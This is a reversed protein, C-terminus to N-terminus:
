KKVPQKTSDPHFKVYQNAIISQLSDTQKVIALVQRAPVDSNPLVEKLIQLQNYIKIADPEELTYKPPVTSKIFIFAAVFLLITITKKPTGM